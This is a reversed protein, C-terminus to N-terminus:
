SDRSYIDSDQVNDLVNSANHRQIVDFRVTFSWLGGGVAIAGFEAFGRIM